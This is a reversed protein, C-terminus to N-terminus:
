KDLIQYVKPILDPQPAVFITSQQKWKFQVIGYYASRPVGAKTDDMLGFHSMISQFDDKTKYSIRQPYNSDSEALPVTAARATEYVMAGFEDDYVPQVLRSISDRLLSFDVKSREDTYAIKAIHEDFFQGRSVGEKGFNKTRSIEPIICARNRRRDPDRLWDDWFADPWIPYIQEFLRRPMLWGLGPFFHSRM